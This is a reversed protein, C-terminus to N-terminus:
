LTLLQKWRNTKLYIARYRNPFFDNELFIDEEPSSVERYTKRIAGLRNLYKDIKVRFAKDHQLYGKITKIAHYTNSRSTAFPEGLEIDSLKPFFWNGLYISIQKAQALQRYKRKYKRLNWDVLEHRFVDKCIDEYTM